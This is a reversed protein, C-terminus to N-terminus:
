DVLEIRGNEANVTIKMGDTNPTSFESANLLNGNLFVGGRAKFSAAYRNINQSLEILIDGQKSEASASVFASGDAIKLAGNDSSIRIDNAFSGHISVDGALANAQIRLSTSTDSVSINGKETNVIIDANLDHIDEVFVDGELANVQIANLTAGYPVYVIIKKQADGLDLDHLINRLGDFSIGVAGEKIIDMVGLTDNIMLMGGALGRIYGGEFLNFIEIKAEGGERIYVNGKKLDIAIKDLATHDYEMVTVRDGNEDRTSVFLDVGQEKAKKEGQVCLIYGSIMLVAGLILAVISAPKM